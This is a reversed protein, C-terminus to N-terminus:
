KGIVKYGIDKRYFGGDWNLKDINNIIKDRASGLDESLSVFNLVRGGVAYVKNEKYLTGAHFLYEDKGLTIKSLNEIEVNNKLLYDKHNSWEGFVDLIKVNYIKSYKALSVASNITSKVTGVKNLCPSWYYISQM